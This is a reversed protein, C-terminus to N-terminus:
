GGITKKIIPQGSKMGHCPSDYVANVHSIEGYNEKEQFQSINKELIPCVENL